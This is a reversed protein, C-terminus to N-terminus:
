VEGELDEALALQLAAFVHVLVLVGALEDPLVPEVLAVLFDLDHLLQFVLVTDPQVLDDVHLPVVLQDHSQIVAGLALDHTPVLLVSGERWTEVINFGETLDFDLLHNTVTDYTKAIQVVM